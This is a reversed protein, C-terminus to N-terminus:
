RRPLADMLGQLPDSGDKGPGALIAEGQWLVQGTSRELLQVVAVLGRGEPAGPTRDPTGRGPTGAGRRGAGGGRGAEPPAERGPKRAEPGPGMQVGGPGLLHVGVWLDSAEPDATAYGHEALAQLVEQQLGRPDMPHYGERILLQGARPDLAASRFRGSSFAPSALVSLAPPRSCALLALVLASAALRRTLM